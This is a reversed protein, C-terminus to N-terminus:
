PNIIERGAPAKVIIARYGNLVLGYVIDKAIVESFPIAPKGQEWLATTGSTGTVFKMQIAKTDQFTIAVYTVFKMHYGKRGEYGGPRSNSM